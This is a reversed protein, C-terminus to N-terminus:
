PVDRPLRKCHEDLREIADGIDLLREIIRSATTNRMTRVTAEVSGEWQHRAPRRTIEGYVGALHGRLPEPLDDPRVVCLLSYAKILRDRADGPAVAFWRYLGVFKEAAYAMRNCDLQGYDLSAPRRPIGLRYAKGKTRRIARLLYGYATRAAVLYEDYNIPWSGWCDVIDLRLRRPERRVSVMRIMPYGETGSGLHLNLQDYGPGAYERRRDIAWGNAKAVEECDDFFSHADSDIKLRLEPLPTELLDM